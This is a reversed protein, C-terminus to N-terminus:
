EDRLDFMVREGGGSVRVSRREERDGKSVIVDYVGPQVRRTVRTTRPRPLTPFPSGAAGVAAGRVGLRGARFYPDLILGAPGALQVEPAQDEESQMSWRVEIWLEVDPRLRDHRVATQGAELLVEEAIFPGTADWESGPRACDILLLQHGPELGAIRYRGDPWVLIGRSETQERGDAAFVHVLARAPPRGHEDVICGSLIVGPRSLDLELDDVVTGPEITLESSVRRRNLADVSEDPGGASVRYRGPKLGRVRFRGEHDALLRVIPLWDTGSWRAFEVPVGDVADGGDTASGAAITMPISLDHHFERVDRVDIEFRHVLVLDGVDIPVPIGYPCSRQGPRLPPQIAVSWRGPRLGDFAYRGEEDSTTEIFEIDTSAGSSAGPKTAIRGAVLTAGALPAYGERVVGHARVSPLSPEDGALVPALLALSVLSTPSLWPSRM